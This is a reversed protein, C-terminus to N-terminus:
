IEICRDRASDGVKYVPLKSQMTGEQANASSRCRQRTKQSRLRRFQPRHFKCPPRWSGAKSIKGTGGTVAAQVEDAIPKTLDYM